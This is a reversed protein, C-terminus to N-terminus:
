SPLIAFAIIHPCDSSVDHLMVCITTSRPLARLDQAIQGSAYATITQGGAQITLMTASEDLLYFLSRVHGICHQVPASREDKM